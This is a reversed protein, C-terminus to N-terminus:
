EELGGICCMAKWSTGNYKVGYTNQHYDEDCVTSSNGTDIELDVYCSGGDANCCQAIWFGNDNYVYGNYKGTNENSCLNDYDETIQDDEICKSSYDCCMISWNNEETFYMFMERRDEICVTDNGTINIDSININHHVNCNSSIDVFSYDVMSRDLYNSSPPVNDTRCSVFLFATIFLLFLTFKKNKEM